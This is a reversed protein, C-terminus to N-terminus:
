KVLVVTGGALLGFGLLMLLLTPFMSGSVPVPEGALTSTPTATITPTLTASPTATGLVQTGSKLIEFTHTIAVPQDTADTTTMTVSSKGPALPTTPTYRFVGDGGITTTDSKPNTIGLTITVSKGPIGTGQILPLTTPLASGDKPAVLRIQGDSKVLREEDQSTTDGLIESADSVPGTLAFSSQTAAQAQLKRFDYTKGIVITPVPSDNLTDTIATADQGDYRIRITETMREALPLYAALDQSRLLNLPILWSGSSKVLASLTQGGEVTLSVIAGDAPANEPTQATGYAPELGGAPPPLAGATRVMFPKGANLYTKGNSLIKVSHESAELLSRVTVSHTIYKRFKGDSDREDFVTRGRERPSSVFLTGTAPGSTTWTMTFSGDTVNTIQVNQPEQSQTAATPLRLVREFIFIVGILIVALFVLGIITPFKNPFRM